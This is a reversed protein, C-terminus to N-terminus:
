CCFYIFLCTGDDNCYCYAKENLIEELYIITGSNYFMANYTDVLFISNRVITSYGSPRISVM